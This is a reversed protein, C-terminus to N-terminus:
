KHSNDKIFDLLPFGATLVDDTPVGFPVGGGARVLRVGGVLLRVWVVGISVDGCISSTDHPSSPRINARGMGGAAGWRGQRRPAIGASHTCLKGNPM